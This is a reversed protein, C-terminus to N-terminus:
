RPNEGHPGAGAREVDAGASAETERLKAVCDMFARVPASHRLDAHTLCWLDCGLEDVVPGLQVLDPVAHMGVPLLAAAVGDRVLSVLPAGNTVRVSPPREGVERRFWAETAVAGARETFLAWPLDRLESGFRAILSPAAFPAFAFRGVRRGFLAEAPANTARIAVDAERLDLDLYRPDTRLEVTLHPHRRGLERLAPALWAVLADLVTVTISGTLEGTHGRLQRDLAVASRELAEAAPRAARAADTPVLGGSSAVFLPVGVSRELADLRRRVTSHSCRLSRAAGSLSGTRLVALLVRADDWNM